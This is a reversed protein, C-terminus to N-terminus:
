RTEAMSLKEDWLAKLVSIDSQFENMTQSDGKEYEELVEFVFADAGWKKWDSQIRMDVCSGTKQSFDFRNKSGRIDTTAELLMKGGRTNKILYVGGVIKRQEYRQKLEKRAANMAKGREIKQM